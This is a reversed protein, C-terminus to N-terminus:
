WCWPEFIALWWADAFTDCKENIIITAHLYSSAALVAIVFLAVGVIRTRSPSVGSAAAVMAFVVLPLGYAIAQAWLPVSVFVPSALVVAFMGTM